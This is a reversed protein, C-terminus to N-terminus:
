YNYEYNNDETATQAAKSRPVSCGVGLIQHNSVENSKNPNNPNNPNNITILM